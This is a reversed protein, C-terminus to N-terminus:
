ATLRRALRRLHPTLEAIRQYVRQPTMGMHRAVEAVDCGHDCLLRLITATKPDLEKLWAGVKEVRARAERAWAPWEDPWRPEWLAAWATPDPTRGGQVRPASFDQVPHLRRRMREQELWAELRRKDRWYERLAAAAYEVAAEQRTKSQRLLRVLSAM